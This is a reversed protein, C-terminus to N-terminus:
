KKSEYSNNLVAFFRQFLLYGDINLSSHSERKFLFYGDNDFYLLRYNTDHFLRDVETYYDPLPLQAINAFTKKRVSFIPKVYPDTVRVLVYDAIDSLVPFTYIYKRQSFHAGLNNQVSLSAESPILIRLKEIVRDGPTVLFNSPNSSFSYPAPSFMISFFTFSFFLFGMVFFKVQSSPYSFIRRLSLILSLFFGPLIIASHYYGFPSYMMPSLSLVNVLLGPIAIFLAFPALLPFFLFPLLLLLGYTIRQPDLLTHIIVGPIRFLSSSISFIDTGLYSYRERVLVAGGVESFRPVIYGNIIFFYLVSVFFLFVGSRKLRLAFFMYISIAVVTLSVDEKCFMAFFFFLIALTLRRIHLFYLGFLLIPMALSLAHFDYLTIDHVVPSILYCYALILSFFYNKLVFFSLFFIPIAGIGILVVQSYLLFEPSSYFQYVVSYLLFILNVHWGFRNSLYIEHRSYGSIGMFYGRSTLYIVQDM